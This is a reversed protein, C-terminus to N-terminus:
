EISRINIHSLRMAVREDLKILADVYDLLGLLRDAAAQDDLQVKKDVSDGM